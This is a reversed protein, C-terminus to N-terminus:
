VESWSQLGEVVTSSVLSLSAGWGGTSATSTKVVVERLGAVGMGTDQVCCQTDTLVLHWHKQLNIWGTYRTLQRCLERKKVTLNGYVNSVGYSIRGSRWSSSRFSVSNRQNQATDALGIHIYRTQDKIHNWYSFRIRLRWLFWLM